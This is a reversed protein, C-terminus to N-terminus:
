DRSSTLKLCIGAYGDVTRVQKSWLTSILSSSGAFFPGIHIAAGLTLTQYGIYTFPLAVSFYRREYRPTINLMSVYGPNYIGGNSGKLNLLINTQLYLHSGMNWDFNLRFAMPLSVSFDKTESKRTVLSDTILRDFYNLYSEQPPKVYQTASVDQVRMVYQASGTDARYRVAGIDTVSVAISYQYPTKRNPDGDPHYEYQLGFDLGLGGRGNRNFWSSLDNNIDPDTFPRINDSYSVQLDGKLSNISDPTHKVITAEETYISGAAMGMVYKLNFGGRLIHYYDDNLIRGYSFGIESFTHTTFGANKFSVPKGAPINSNDGILRFAGSGINGGRVVERVRTYFGASAEENIRFSVAPGLVDTNGWIHKAATRLDKFYDKGEAARGSFGNTVYGKSFRYANTGALGSASFLHIETGDDAAATWAPNYPVQRIGPATSNNSGIFQQALAAPALLLVVASAPIRLMFSAPILFYLGFIVANGGYNLGPAFIIVHRKGRCGEQHM